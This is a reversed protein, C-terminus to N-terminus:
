PNKAASTTAGATRSRRCAAPSDTADSLASAAPRTIPDHDHREDRREGVVRDGRHGIESRSPDNPSPAVRESVIRSTIM